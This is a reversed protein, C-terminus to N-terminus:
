GLWTKLRLTKIIHFIHSFRNYVVVRLGMQYKGFSDHSCCLKEILADISLDTNHLKLEIRFRNFNVSFFRHEIHVDLANQTNKKWKKVWFISYRNRLEFMIFQNIKGCDDDLFNSVIM